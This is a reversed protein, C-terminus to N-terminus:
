LKAKSQFPKPSHQETDIPGGYAERLESWDEYTFAIEVSMLSTGSELAEGITEDITQGISKRASPGIVVPTEVKRIVTQIIKAM